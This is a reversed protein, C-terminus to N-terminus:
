LNLIRNVHIPDAFLSDVHALRRVGATLSDSMLNFRGEIHPNGLIHGMEHMVVTLLDMRDDAGGGSAAILESGTAPRFEVDDAATADVYWGYGAGDRDIFVTTGVTSGLQGEGLDSVQLSMAGLLLAKDESLGSSLYRRISERATAMLENETVALAGRGVVSAGGAAMLPSPLVPDGAPLRNGTRRSINVFDTVNIVGDGNVDDTARYDPAGVSTNVRSVGIDSVTVSGNQDADGALVDIRLEYDSGGNLLPGGGALRVPSADTAEGALNLLLRDATPPPSVTWQAVFNSSDYHFGGKSYSAQNLGVLTLAESSVLVDKDFFIALTEMGIWPLLGSGASVPGVGPAWSPSSFTVGVVLPPPSDDDRITYTHTSQTSGDGDGDGIILGSSPGTLTLQITEDPEMASDDVISLNTAVATAATGSYTGALITVSASNAFDVGDTATGGTVSVRITQSTALTGQVLLVPFSSNTSEPGSATSSSFEILATDDDVITYTHVSQTAGGGDADDIALGSSPAALVLQITEDLEVISDDLISLNTSVSTGPTGDYTGAPITISASNEFDSGHSATGGTVNVDITQSTALTGSVLLMPLNVGSAEEDSETATSFEVQALDDNLITYTHTSQIKGDNDADGVAIGSSPNSLMLEITEDVEVTPDDLISLHTAVETATTGDYSGAPITVTTTNSFDTGESGIGGTVTVDITQPSMLDGNLLLVPMNGGSAESDSAAAVDFEVSVVLSSVRIEGIKGDTRDFSHTTSVAASDSWLSRSSTAYVGFSGNAGASAVFDFALLGAGPATPVEVGGSFPFEVDFGFVTDNATTTTTVDPSFLASPSGLIYSSGLSVSHFGVTGSAGADPVIMLEAQWGALNDDSSGPGSTRMVNLAMSGASVAGAEIVLPNGAPFDTGLALDVALLVRGELAEIRLRGRKRVPSYGPRNRSRDSRPGRPAYIYPM